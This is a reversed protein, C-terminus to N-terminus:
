RVGFAALEGDRRLQEITARLKDLTAPATDRHCALYLDIHGFNALPQVAPKRGLSQFIRQAVLENVLWYDVRRAQLMRLGTLHDRVEQVPLDHGRLWAAPVSNRQTVVLADRLDAPSSVRRTEDLRGYLTMSSSSVLGVWHLLAENEPLRPIGVACSGAQQGLTQRIRAAPMAQTRLTVGSVAGIRAILEAGPGSVQGGSVEFLGPTANHVLM